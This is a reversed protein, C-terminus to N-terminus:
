LQELEQEIEKMRDQWQQSLTAKLMEYNPNGPNLQITDDKTGRKDMVHVLVETSAQLKELRGELYEHEGILEKAQNANDPNM